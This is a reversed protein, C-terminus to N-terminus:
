QDESQTEKKKAPKKTHTKKEKKAPPVKKEPKTEIKKKTEIREAKQPPVKFLSNENLYIKIHRASRFYGGKCKMYLSRFTENTILEKARLEQLFERQSRIKNIWVEKSPLRATKRGKRSGPGIQQNKSKQSKTERARGRSVGLENKRQIAGEAILMRIDRKTIAENIDILHENSFWVRKPSCNLLQSALRKQIRM